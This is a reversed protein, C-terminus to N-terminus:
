ASSTSYVGDAEAAKGESVFWPVWQIPPQNSLLGSCKPSSFTEQSVPVRFSSKGTTLRTV